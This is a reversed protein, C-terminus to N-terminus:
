FYRRKQIENIIRRRNANFLIFNFRKKRKKTTSGGTGPTETGSSSNQLFDRWYVANERRTSEVEVGAREYCKLFASALYQVSENSTSFEKFSLNYEDTAIWQLNNELEYIIMSLNNDMTSPDFLNYTTCYDFYKTAPTWQVLGYGGSKNGVNESQWRGPNMSSEAQINGLIGAIANKTWGALTLFKSIYQANVKMQDLTLTSSSTYTSGYYDGLNGSRLEAM